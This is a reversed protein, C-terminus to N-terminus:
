QCSDVVGDGTKHAVQFQSFMWLGRPPVGYIHFRIGYASGRLADERM